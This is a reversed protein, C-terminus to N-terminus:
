PKIRTGKYLLRKSLCKLFGEEEKEDVVEYWAHFANQTEDRDSMLFYYPYEGKMRGAVTKFSTWESELNKKWSKSELSM